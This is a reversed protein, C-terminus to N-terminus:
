SLLFSKTFININLNKMKLKTELHLIQRQNAYKENQYLKQATNYNDLWACTSFTIARNLERKEAQMLQM